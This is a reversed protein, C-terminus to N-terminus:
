RALDGAGVLNNRGVLHSGMPDDYDSLDATGTPLVIANGAVITNDIVITGGVDTQNEVGGGFTAATNNSVTDDAMWLAFMNAIGGGGAYLAHNGSITSDVITM